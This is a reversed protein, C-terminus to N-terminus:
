HSVGNGKILDVGHSLFVLLLSLACESIGYSTLQLVLEYKVSSLKLVYESLLPSVSIYFFFFVLNLSLSSFINACKSLKSSLNFIFDLFSLEFWYGSFTSELLHTFFDMSSILQSLIHFSELHTLLRMLLLRLLRSLWRLRLRSSRIFRSLIFFVQEELELPELGCPM